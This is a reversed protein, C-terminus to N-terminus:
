VGVPTVVYSVMEKPHINYIYPDQACEVRPVHWFEKIYTLQDHSAAMYTGYRYGNPVKVFLPLHVDSLAVTSMGSIRGDTFIQMDPKGIDIQIFTPLPGSFQLFLGHRENLMYLIILDNPSPFSPNGIYIYWRAEMQHAPSDM